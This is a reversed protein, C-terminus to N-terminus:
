KSEKILTNLAAAIEAAREVGAAAILRRAVEQSDRVLFVRNVSADSQALLGCARMAAAASLEGEEFARLAQKVQEQEVGKDACLKPDDAYRKLTRRRGERSKRDPPSSDTTVGCTGEDESHQNRGTPNGPKRHLLDDLAAAAKRWEPGYADENARIIDRWGPVPKSLLDGEPASCAVTELVDRPTAEILLTTAEVASSNMRKNAVARFLQSMTMGLGWDAEVWEQMSTAHNVKCRDPNDSFHGIGKEWIRAQVATVLADSIDDSSLRIADRLQTNLQTAQLVEWGQEKLWEARRRSFEREAETAM